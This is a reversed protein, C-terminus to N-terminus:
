DEAGSYSIFSTPLLRYVEDLESKTLGNEMVGVLNMPKLVLGLIHRCRTSFEDCISSTSTNLRIRGAEMDWMVQYANITPIAKRVLETRVTEVLEDREQRPMKKRHTAELNQKIRQRVFLKLTSSPIAIRDIRFSFLAQSGFFVKEPTFETDLPDEWTAFGVARDRGSEVDIRSIRGRMLGDMLAMQPDMAPIEIVRYCTYTATM